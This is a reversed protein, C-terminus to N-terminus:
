FYHKFALTLEYNKLPLIYRLETEWAWQHTILYNQKFAFILPKSIDGAVYLQYKGSILFSWYPDPRWLLANSLGPGTRWWSSFGSSIDVEYEIFMYYLFHDLFGLNYSQFTPGIGFNFYGYIIQPDTKSKLEPFLSKFGLDARWSPKYIMKGLPNLSIMQFLHAEDLKPLKNKEPYYQFTLSFGRLESYPSYGVPSDTIERLAPMISAKVLPGKNSYGSQIKVQSSEHGDVPNQFDPPINYGPITTLQNPDGRKSYYKEFKEKQVKTPKGYAKSKEILMHDMAIDYILSRRLPSINGPVDIGEDVVNELVDRETSTLLTYKHKYRTVMSPRYKIKKLVDKKSILVKVTDAPQVVFFFEDTLSLNDQSAEIVSMLKYSCNKNFFYYRFYTSNMEWLHRIIQDVTEQPFDLEFDWIDRNEYENYDYIVAYFPKM